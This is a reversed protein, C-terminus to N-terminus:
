TKIMTIACVQTQATAVKWVPTQKIPIAHVYLYTSHPCTDTPIPITNVIDACYKSHLCIKGTGIATERILQISQCTHNSIGAVLYASCGIACRWNECLTTYVIQCSYWLKFAIKVYPLYDDSPEKPHKQLDETEIDGPFWSCKVLM